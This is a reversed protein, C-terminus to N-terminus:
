FVANQCKLWCNQDDLVCYLAQCIGPASDIISIGWLIIFHVARPKIWTFTNQMWEYSHSQQYTDTTHKQYYQWVHLPPFLSLSHCYYCARSDYNTLPTTHGPSIVTHWLTECSYRWARLVQLSVSKMERRWKECLYVSDVPCQEYDHIILNHFIM